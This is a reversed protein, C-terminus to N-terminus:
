SVRAHSTNSSVATWSFVYLGSKPARFCNEKEDWGTGANTLTKEFELKAPLDSLSETKAKMVTFGIRKLDNKSTLSNKASTEHDM